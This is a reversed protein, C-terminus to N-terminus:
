HKDVFRRRSRRFTGGVPNVPSQFLSEALHLSADAGKEDVDGFIDRFMRRRLFKMVGSDHRGFLRQIDSFKETVSAEARGLPQFEDPFSIAIGRVADFSSGFPIRIVSSVASILPRFLSDCPLFRGRDIM